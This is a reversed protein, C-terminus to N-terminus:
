LPSSRCPSRQQGIRWRSRYTTTQPAKQTRMIWAQLIFLSASSFVGIVPWATDFATDQRERSHTRSLRQADPLLPPSRAKCSRVSHWRTQHASATCSDRDISRSIDSRGRSTRPIHIDRRSTRQKYHKKSAADTRRRSHPEAQICIPMIAVAHIDRKRRKQITAKISNDSSQADCYRDNVTPQQSLRWSM